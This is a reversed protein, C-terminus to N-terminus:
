TYFIKLSDRLRRHVREVVACKLETNRCMQFQIGVGQLM